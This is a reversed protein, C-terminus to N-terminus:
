KGDLDDISPLMVLFGVLCFCVYPVWQGIELPKMRQCEKLFSDMLQLKFLSGHTLGGDGLVLIVEERLAAMVDGMQCLNLVAQTILDTAGAIAVFILALQMGAPDYPRGNACEEIWQTADDYREPVRGERM